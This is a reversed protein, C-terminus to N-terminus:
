GALWSDLFDYAMARVAPPFDHDGAGMLGVYRDGAGLWDYLRSLDLSAEAVSRWHPFIHDLQGAWQFFPTPAALAAIEHLEFPVEGRDLADGIRPLHSFWERKDWRRPDPDGAFPSLGCSSVVARIRSDVGALFFSNYGGLSHGITGIRDPDVMPLSCLLDVGHMHDSLMRGVVSWAPGAAYFPATM